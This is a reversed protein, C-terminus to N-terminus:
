FPPVQGIADLVGRSPRKWARAADIQAADAAKSEELLRRAARVRPDDHLRDLTTM